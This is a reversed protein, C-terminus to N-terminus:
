AQWPAHRHSGRKRIGRHASQAIPSSGTESQREGAAAGIARVFEPSSPDLAYAKKYFEIAKAADEAHGSSEFEQEYLHGMTVNYYAQARQDASVGGQAPSAPPATRQQDQALAVAGTVGFILLAVTLFRIKM